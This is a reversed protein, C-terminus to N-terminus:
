NESMRWVFFSFAIIVLGMISLLLTPTLNGSVPLSEPTASPTVRPTGSPTATPKFTPSPTPSSSAKPTPTSSPSPTPSPTASQSAVFAPVEGAQVVFNRTLTRTIGSADLWSITISHPGESLPVSPSYSWSGNQPIKIVQSTVQESHITITITEGSPGKGFFQPENSTVVEGENISELIVSTPKPSGSPTTIDFKSEKLTEEPLASAHVGGAILTIEESHKKVEEALTLAEAYLPTTFTVGVFEPSFERLTKKLVELHKEKYVSLDLIKVANSDQLLAAGLAATSIYPIESLAAKLKSKAYIRISASPIVLLVRKKM